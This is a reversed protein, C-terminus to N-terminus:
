VKVFMKGVMDCFLIKQNVNRELLLQARDLCAMANRCFTKKCKGSVSQFFGIEDNTIGAIDAMDQQLLFIKRFCDGAFKCFAKQKERSDLAAINEGVELAAMLDKEVFSTALAEFLSLNDKYDSQDALYHLAKGVSGGSVIAAQSAQGPDKHFQSVLVSAVDERGLPLVRIGLCRSSITQLVREPAHTIMLFLTNEPPEEVIKLLRNSADQNMKEPLYLVVTRYGGEVATLSLNELIMKAEAVAIASAKGEIGLADGLENELFFPNSCAL